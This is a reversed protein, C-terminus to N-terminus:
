KGHMKGVKGEKKKGVEVSREMWGGAANWIGM